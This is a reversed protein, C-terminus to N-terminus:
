EEEEAPDIELEPMPEFNSADFPPMEPEKAGFEKLL